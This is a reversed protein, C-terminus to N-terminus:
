FHGDGGLGTSVNEPWSSFAHDSSMYHAGVSPVNSLPPNPDPLLRLVRREYRQQHATLKLNKQIERVVHQKFLDPDLASQIGGMSTIYDQPLQREIKEPDWAAARRDQVRIMENWIANKQDPLFKAAALVLLRAQNCDPEKPQLNVQTALSKMTCNMRGDIIKVDFSDDFLMDLRLHGVGEVRCRGM